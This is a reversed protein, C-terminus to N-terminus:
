ELVLFPYYYPWYFRKLNFSKNIIFYKKAITEIEELTRFHNGLDGYELLKTFPGANPKSDILIFKKFKVKSKINRFVKELSEDDLHHIFNVILVLEYKEAFDRMKTADSVEFKVNKSGFQFRAKRLYQQSLDLGVYKRPTLYKLIEGTGCGIELITKSEFKRIEKSSVEYFNMGLSLQVINYILPNNLLKENISM